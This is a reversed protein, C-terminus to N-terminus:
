GLGWLRNWLKSFNLTIIVRYHWDDEGAAIADQRMGECLDKSEKRSLPESTLVQVMGGPNKGSLDVYAVAWIEMLKDADYFKRLGLCLNV